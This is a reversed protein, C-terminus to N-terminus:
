RQRKYVDLHTYSVAWPGRTVARGHGCETTCQPARCTGACRRAFRDAIAREDEGSRLADAVARATPEAIRMRRQERHLLYVAVALAIVLAALVAVAITLATVSM